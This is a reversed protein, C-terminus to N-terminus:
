DISIHLHDKGTGMKQLEYARNVFEDKLDGFQITSGSSVSVDKIFDKNIWDHRSWLKRGKEEDTESEAFWDYRKDVKEFFDEYFKELESLFYNKYGSYKEEQEDLYHGEGLSIHYPSTYKKRRQGEENNLHLFGQPLKVELAYFKSDHEEYPRLQLNRVGDRTLQEVRANYQSPRIRKAKWDVAGDYNDIKKSARDYADQKDVDKLKWDMEPVKKWTKTEKDWEDKTEIEENWGDWSGDDKWVKKWIKRPREEWNSHDKLDEVFKRESATPSEPVEWEDAPEQPLGQGRQFETGWEAERKRKPLNQIDPEM